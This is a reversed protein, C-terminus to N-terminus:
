MSWRVGAMMNFGRTNYGPIEYYTKNTLNKLDLFLNIEKKLSYQNILDITTYDGLIINPDDYLGSLARSVTKIQASSSWKNTWQYTASLNFVHPSRRYLNDSEVQESNLVTSQTGKLYTYNIFVYLKKGTYGTELELGRANEKDLNAYRGYPAEPLDKFIIVQEARNNFYVARAWFSRVFYHLGAEFTLATTPKLDANGYESFLQYQSPVKFASSLNSFVKLKRDILLFPNVNFTNNNGYVSHQNLRGGLEMGFIGLDVTSLSAYASSLNTKADSRLLDPAEFPGWASVTYYSSFMSQTRHELGTVLNFKEAIKFSGFLEVFDSYGEYKGDVFPANERDNGQSYARKLNNKVYRLRINGGSLDYRASANIQLSRNKGFYDKGDTFAGEDLGNKYFSQMVGGAIQLAPAINHHAQLSWQHSQIGDHDFGQDKTLDQAASFGRAGLYGYQVVLGSKETQTQYATNAQLTGFSGAALQGSWKKSGKKTIINIVGAMADSGYLTSQGGKLIEIREIQEPSILNLDFANTNVSPDYVAVGDILILTNGVSTGRTYLDKNAGFANNSGIIQIGTQVNLIETLSRGANRSLTAADIVTLVKGTQSQKQEYRGATVVVQDLSQLTDLNQSFSHFSLCLLAVALQKTQFM